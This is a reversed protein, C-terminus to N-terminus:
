SNKPLRRRPREIRMNRVVGSAHVTAEFACHQPVGEGETRWAHGKKGPSRVTKKSENGTRKGPMVSAFRLRRALTEGIRSEIALYEPYPAHMSARVRGNSTSSSVGAHM